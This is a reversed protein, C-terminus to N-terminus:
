TWEFPKNIGVTLEGKDNHITTRSTWAQCEGLEVTELVAEVFLINIQKRM